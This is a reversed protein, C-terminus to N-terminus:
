FKCEEQAQDVGRGEFSSIHNIQDRLQRDNRSNDDDSKLSQLEKVELQTNKRVNGRQKHSRRFHVKILFPALYLFFWRRSLEGTRNADSTVKFKLSMEMYGLFFKRRQGM